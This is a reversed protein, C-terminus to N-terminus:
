TRCAPRRPQPPNDGAGAAGAPTTGATDVDIDLLDEVRRVLRRTDEASAGSVIVYGHRTRWDVIRPIPDGPAFPFSLDHVFECARAADLGQVSRLVGVPLDFYHIRATRDGTAPSLPGGDMAEFISRPLDFGSSLGVLQPIKDGGLRAQSEVIRPGDPTLKVETHAPGTQYGTIDLMAVVLESMAATDPSPPEPHVHGMEVFLPPPGLLKRTVGIVHHVGRVSVTEVSFEPGRLYEEILVPGAYGYSELLAGWGPLEGANELLLVGRSGSLETPKVVVPLSFGDLLAAVDQWRDAHAFRVPSLGHRDLAQRLALKDNLLRVSGPSNVALGFEEAVRYTLLMSEEAGFHCLVDPGFRAVADRLVGTFEEPDDFDALRLTVAADALDALYREAADGFIRAAVKPDWIAYIEFGCRSAKPLYDLYPMVMVARTM